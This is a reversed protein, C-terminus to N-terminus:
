PGVESGVESVSPAESLNDPLPNNGGGPPSEMGPEAPPNAQGAQGQGPPPQTTQFVGYRIQERMMYYQRYIGQLNPDLVKFRDSVMFMRDADLFADHEDEVNIMPLTGTQLFNVQAILAQERFVDYTSQYTDSELVLGVDARFKQAAPTDEYAKLGYLETREALKVARSTPEQSFPVVILDIDVNYTAPDFLDVSVVSGNGILKIPYGQPLAQLLSVAQKLIELCEEQFVRNDPEHAADNLEAQFAISRASTGAAPPQGRAVDSLMSVDALANRQADMYGFLGSDVAPRSLFEPKNLSDSYKLIQAGIDDIEESITAESPVLLSPVAAYKMWEHAKSAAENIDRNLPIIDALTGDAQMQRPAKNQGTILSWPFRHPLTPQGSEDMNYELISTGSYVIKRGNPYKKCPREWREIIELMEYRKSARPLERSEEQIRTGAPKFQPVDGFIDVEWTDEAEDRSMIRKHFIVRAEKLRTATPDPFVELCSYEECMIEGMPVGDPGKPGKDKNVYTKVWSWGDIEALLVANYITQYPIISLKFLSKLYADVKKARLASLPDGQVSAVYPNPFARLRKAVASRVTPRSFNLTRFSLREDPQPLQNTLSLPDPFRYHVGRYFEMRETVLPKLKTVADYADQFDQEWKTLEEALLAKAEIIGPQIPDELQGAMLSTM